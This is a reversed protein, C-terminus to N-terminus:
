KSVELRLWEILEDDLDVQHWIEVLVLHWWYELNM